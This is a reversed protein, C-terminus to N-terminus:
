NGVPFSVTVTFSNDNVSIILDSKLESKTLMECLRLGSSKSLTKEESQRLTNSISVSALGDKQDTITITVLGKGHRFSNDVLESIILSLTAAQRASSFLPPIYDCELQEGVSKIQILDALVRDLRLHDGSGSSRVEELLIDHISSLAHLYHTLKQIDTKSVTERQSFMINVYSIINQLTNKVRHHSEVLASKLQAIEDSPLKVKITNL